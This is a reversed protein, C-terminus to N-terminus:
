KEVDRNVQRQVFKSPIWDCYTEIGKIGILWACRSAHVCDSCHKGKPLKSNM